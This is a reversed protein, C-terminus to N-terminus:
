VMGNISQQEMRDTNCLDPVIYYLGNSIRVIYIRIVQMQSNYNSEKHSELRM